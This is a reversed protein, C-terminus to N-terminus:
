VLGMFHFSNELRKRNQQSGRNEASADRRILRLHVRQMGSIHPTINRFRFVPAFHSMELRGIGSPLLAVGVCGSGGRHHPDRGDAGGRQQVIIVMVMAVMAIVVSVVAIAVPTPLFSAEFTPM